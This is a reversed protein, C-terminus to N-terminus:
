LEILVNAVLDCNRPHLNPKAVIKFVKISFIRLVKGRVLYNTVINKEKLLVYEQLSLVM